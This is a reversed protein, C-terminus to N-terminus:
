KKITAIMHVQLPEILISIEEQFGSNKTLKELDRPIRYYMKPWGLHYVFPMESNPYVNAFIFLGDKKLINYIHQFLGTAKEDEFYDLLGVMEVIDITEKGIIMELNKVDEKIWEFIAGCHLQEALKKGIALAREDKDINMIKINNPQTNGGYLKKITHLLARSSGGGLSLVTIKEGKQKTEHAIKEELIDEVIKLRNRLAKPQSVTHHWFWDAIGQFVGRSFLSRHYRTYMVELAITSGTNEVVTGEDHSTALM